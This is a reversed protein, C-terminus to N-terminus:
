PVRLKNILENSLVREEKPFPRFGLISSKTKGKPSQALDKAALLVDNEIDLTTRM